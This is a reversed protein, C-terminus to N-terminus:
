QFPRGIFLYFEDRGGEALGWGVYILVKQGPFPKMARATLELGREPSTAARAAAFDFHQALSPRALSPRGRSGCCPFWILLMVASNSWRTIRSTPVSM